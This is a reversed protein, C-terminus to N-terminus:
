TIAICNQIFKKNIGDKTLKTDNTMPTKLLAICTNHQLLIQKTVYKQKDVTCM